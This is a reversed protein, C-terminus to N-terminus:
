FDTVMGKELSDGELTVNILAEHGHLHRCVLNNDISFESNLEQNWVRHGYCGSFSKTIEWKSM